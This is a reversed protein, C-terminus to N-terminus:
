KGLTRAAVFLLLAAGASVAPVHVHPNKYELCGQYLPVESM